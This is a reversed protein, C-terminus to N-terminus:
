RDKLEYDITQLKYETEQILHGLLEGFFIAIREDTAPTFLNRRMSDINFFGVIREFSRIPVCIGSLCYGEEIIPTRYVPYNSYAYDDITIARWDRKIIEGFLSSDIPIDVEMDRRANPVFDDYQVIKCLRGSPSDTILGVNATCHENKIFSYYDHTLNLIMRYGLVRQEEVESPENSKLISASIGRLEKAVTASLFAFRVVYLRTDIEIDSRRLTLIIVVIFLLWVALLTYYIYHHISYPLTLHTVVTIAIISSFVFLVEFLRAARLRKM